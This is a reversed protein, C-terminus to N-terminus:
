DIYLNYERCGDAFDEAPVEMHKKCLDDLDGELDQDSSHFLRRYSSPSPSLSHTPFFTIRSSSCLIHIHRSSAISYRRSFLAASLPRRGLAWISSSMM